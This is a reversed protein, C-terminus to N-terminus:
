QVNERRRPWLSTSSASALVATTAETGRGALVPLCIRRMHRGLIMDRGIVITDPRDSINGALFTGERRIVM